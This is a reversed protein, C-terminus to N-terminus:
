DTKAMIRRLEDASIPLKADKVKFTLYAEESLDSDLKAEVDLHDVEAVDDRFYKLFFVTWYELERQQVIIDITQHKVSVKAAPEFESFQGIKFTLKKNGIVILEQILNEKLLCLNLCWDGINVMSLDIEIIRQYGITQVNVIIDQRVVKSM